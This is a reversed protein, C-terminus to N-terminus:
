GLRKKVESVIADSTIGFHKYLDGYPASAGFSNMGVFIGDLGILGDWSQRIGAEVAVMVSGSGLVSKRYDADQAKFREMSPMSVVLRM